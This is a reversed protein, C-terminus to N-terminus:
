FIYVNSIDLHHGHLYLVFPTLVTEIKVLNNLSRHVGMGTVSQLKVRKASWGASSDTGALKNLSYRTAGEFLNRADGELYNAACGCWKARYVWATSVADSFIGHIFNPSIYIFHFMYVVEFSTLFSLVHNRKKLMNTRPFLTAGSSIRVSYRGVTFSPLQPKDLGSPWTQFYQTGCSTIHIRFAYPPRIEYHLWSVTAAHKQHYQKQM